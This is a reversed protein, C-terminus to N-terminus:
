DTPYNESSQRFLRQYQDYDERTFVNFIVRDLIRPNSKLWDGVTKFAIRAAESRPFCFEGTSICCFALTKISGQKKAAELCAYYCSALLDTDRATLRSKIIPGVTHLVFKCPLNYAATLKAQGTPEPHGQKQMLAQCELRMQMGAASHIANDICKHLPVFCGLMQSNAANVIADSQLTTIDGQWLVLNEAGRFKYSRGVPPLSYPDVINGAKSQAQLIADQIALMASSIPRPPRLNMLTRLLRLRGPYDAPLPFKAQGSEELLFALLIEISETPNLYLGKYVSYGSCPSVELRWEFGQEPNVCSKL